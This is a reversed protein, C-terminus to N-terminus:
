QNYLFFLGWKFCVLTNLWTFTKTLIPSYMNFVLIWFKSWITTPNIILWHRDGRFNHTRIGCLRPTCSIVNHSLTQWYSAVPQNNQRPVGTEGVLSVTWWSVVSINTFTANFVMIYKKQLWYNSHVIYLHTTCVTIQRLNNTMFKPIFL